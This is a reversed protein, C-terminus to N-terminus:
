KKQTQAFAATHFQLVEGFHSLFYGISHDGPYLHYEHPVGDGKLEKDLENTGAEFGYQDQDGCNFYIAMTKLSAPNKKALLIPDNARWHAWDIPNGFVSGLLKGKPTGAKLAANLEQPSETMLAPSQASVASFMKPYAFGFRLAGYGGM